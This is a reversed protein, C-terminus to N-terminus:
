STWHIIRKNMECFLLNLDLRHVDTGEGGRGLEKKKKFQLSTSEEFPYQLFIHLSTFPIQINVNLNLPGM